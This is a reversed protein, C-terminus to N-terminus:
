YSLCFKTDSCRLVPRRQLGSNKNAALSSIHGHHALLTSSPPGLQRDRIELSRLLYKQAETHLGIDSLAVGLNSMSQAVLADDEGLWAIRIALAREHLPIALKPRGTARYIYALNNLSDAVVRGCLGFRAERISLAQLYLSEATSYDNLASYVSGLTFLAYAYDPHETGLIHERRAVADKLAERAKEYLGEDKYVVGLWHQCSAYKLSEKGLVSEAVVTCRRLTDEALELRGHKWQLRGLRYLAEIYTSDNTLGEKERANVVDVVAQERHFYSMEDLEQHLGALEDLLSIRSQLANQSLQSNDREAARDMESISSTSNQTLQKCDIELRKLGQPAEAMVLIPISFTVFIVQFIGCVFPYIKM